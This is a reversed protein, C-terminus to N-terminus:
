LELLRPLGPAVPKRQEQNSYGGLPAMQTHENEGAEEMEKVPGNQLQMATKTPPHALPCQLHTADRKRRVRGEM